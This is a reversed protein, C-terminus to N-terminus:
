RSTGGGETPELFHSKGTGSPGCIVLNEHNAVWELTRLAAQTPPPISSTQETWAEFTKGAAKRRTGISSGHIEQAASWM